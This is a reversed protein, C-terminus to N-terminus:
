YNGCYSNLFLWSFPRSIPVVPIIPPIEPKRPNTPKELLSGAPPNPLYLDDVEDETLTNLYKVDTEWVIVGSDNMGTNENYWLWTKFTFCVNTSLHTTCWTTTVKNYQDYFRTGPTWPGSKQYAATYAPNKMVTDPDNLGRTKDPIQTTRAYNRNGARSYKVEYFDSTTFDVLDVENDPQQLTANSYHVGVAVAHGLNNARLGYPDSWWLYLWGIYYEIISNFYTDSKSIHGSPDIYSSPNDWGYIFRNESLPNNPAGAFTDRSIFRGASPNYYRARNFYLGDYMKVIAQGLTDFDLTSRNLVNYTTTVVYGNAATTTLRNGVLGYSYRTVLNQLSGATNASMAM